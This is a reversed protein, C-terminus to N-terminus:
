VRRGKWNYKGFVGAPAILIIYLVHVAQVPLFLWLLNERRFFKTVAYTFLTDICLKALFMWMALKLMPPFFLGIALNLVILLNMLYVFALIATIRKDEYHTSKSTWRVRQNWFAVFDKETSTYVIADKNKLYAIKDGYKKAMKHMLMMDDGSPIHDIQRFGDVEIFASKTYALNAGNCLNYFGNQISAAAIGVLSLFDLTQFKGLFSTDHFYSVMGAIMVPKHQEYYAVTTFIWNSGPHCDADTTMILEGTAERVAKEIGIKKNVRNVLALEPDDSLAIVRLNPMQFNRILQLTNDTSHVDVVIVEFLNKNYRQEKLNNLLNLINHSENRVPVVVTVKTTPMKQGPEFEKLRLWGALFYLILLVYGGILTFVLINLLLMRQLILYRLGSFPM